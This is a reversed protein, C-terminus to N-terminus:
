YPYDSQIPRLPGSEELELRLKCKPCEVVEGGRVRAISQLISKREEQFCNPCIQHPPEGEKDEINLSYVQVGTPCTTLKYRAKQSEWAAVKRLQEELESIKELMAAREALGQLAASQAVMIEAQLSTVKSMVESDVKMGLLNKTIATATSLSTAVASISSADIM